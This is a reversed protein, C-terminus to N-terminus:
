FSLKVHLGAEISHLRKGELSQVLFLLPITSAANMAVFRRLSQGRSSSSRHRSDPAM